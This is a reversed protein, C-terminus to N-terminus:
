APRRWGTPHATSSRKRGPISLDQAIQNAREKLESYPDDSGIADYVARHVKTAVSASNMGPRFGDALIKVAVAM